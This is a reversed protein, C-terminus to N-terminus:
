RVGARCLVVRRPRPRRARQQAACGKKNAKGVDAREAILFAVMAARGNARKSSAAVHLATNRRGLVRAVPPRQACLLMPSHCPPV